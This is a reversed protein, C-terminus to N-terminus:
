LDTISLKLSSLPKSLRGGAALGMARIDKPEITNIPNLNAEPGVESVRSGSPQGSFGAQSGYAM